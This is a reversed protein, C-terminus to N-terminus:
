WITNKFFRAIKEDKSIIPIAKSIATAVIVRDAPDKHEWNLTISDIWIKEDVPLIEICKLEKIKLLYDEISMGIDLGNNKIKIGIEWISISSIFSGTNVIESCRTLAKQSLKEPDLTWWLLTHTDLLVM